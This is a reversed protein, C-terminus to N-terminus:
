DCIRFLNHTNRLTQEAIDMAPQQRLQSLTELVECLYAPENRQKAHTSGPQDPSDTELLLFEMPLNQVLHRLRKARPYTVPGGFSLYFGMDILQSAQQQSGSYSHFMGRLGPYRKLTNIVV